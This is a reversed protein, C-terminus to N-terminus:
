IQCGRILVGSSPFLPVLPVPVLFPGQYLPQLVDAIDHCRPPPQGGWFCVGEPKVSVGVSEGSPLM